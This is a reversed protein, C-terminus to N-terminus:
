LRAHNNACRESTSGAKQPHHNSRQGECFRVPLLAFQVILEQSFIGFNNCDHNLNYNQELVALTRPVSCSRSVCVETFAALAGSYDGKAYRHRGKEMPGMGEEDAAPRAIRIAKM